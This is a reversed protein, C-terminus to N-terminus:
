HSSSVSRVRLQSATNPEMVRRVDKVLQGVSSGVQGASGSKIVFSKPKGDKEAAKNVPVHTRNKRRKAMGKAAREEAGDSLRGRHWSPPKHDRVPVVKGFRAFVPWSTTVSRGKTRRRNSPWTM